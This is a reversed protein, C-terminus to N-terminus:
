RGGAASCGVLERCRCFFIYVCVSLNNYQRLFLALGQPTLHKTPETLDNNGGNPQRHVFCKAISTEFADETSNNWRLIALIADKPVNVAHM